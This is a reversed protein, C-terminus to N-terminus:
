PPSSTRFGSASPPEVVTEYGEGAYAAIRARAHRELWKNGKDAVDFVEFEGGGEVVEGKANREVRMGRGLRQLTSIVSKGGSGVVVSRLAPIDIGEQFVSSCVLVDYHGQLLRKVHSRRWELSHEGWIFEAQIGARMLMDTLLKGHAVEKVFVLGPKTARRTLEVLAANRAKSNVVLTNYVSAWSAANSLQTVTALKVHPRALVGREILLEAKIRYIVPGLAAIAMLSRRDGRALPTGSLGVRYQARKTMMAVRYFTEAPLTHCEDVLLGDCEELLRVARLYEPDDTGYDERRKLAVLISQFTAAVLDADRPLDWTGERVRGAVRGPTRLEYRAAIDDALQGRHVLALWKGPLVRTLGVLIETKGSGTPCWLIGRKKKLVAAVADTQYDRLWALDADPDHTVTATRRDVFEM